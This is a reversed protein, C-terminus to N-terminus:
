VIVSQPRTFIAEDGSGEKKKNYCKLADIKNLFDTCCLTRGCSGIGGVMKAKDRVGM